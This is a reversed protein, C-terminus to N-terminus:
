DNILSIYSDPFNRATSKRLYKVSYNQAIQQINYAASIIIIKTKKYYSLEQIREILWEGAYLPTFDSEMQMDTLILDFPREINKFVIDYAEKASSAYSIEAEQILNSLVSAHHRQWGIIDDVILIKM